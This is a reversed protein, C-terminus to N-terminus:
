DTAIRIISGRGAVALNLEGTRKQIVLNDQNDISLTLNGINIYHLKDLDNDFNGSRTVEPNGQKSSKKFEIEM